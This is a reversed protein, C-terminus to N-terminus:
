TLDKTDNIGVVRCNLQNGSVWFRYFLFGGLLKFRVGARRGKSFCLYMLMHAHNRCKILDHCHTYILM